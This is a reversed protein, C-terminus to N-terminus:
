IKILLKLASKIKEEISLSKDVKKLISLITKKDYGLAILADIVENDDNYYNEEAIIGQNKFKNELDLIIQQASKKGIKPFKTIYVIDNSLVAKKFDEINTAALILLATKPGIGKVSILDLFLDKEERKFFGYLSIEDEKVHQYIYVMVKEELNFSYPNSVNVEYGVGNIDIVIYKPSIIKIIGNLYNYM